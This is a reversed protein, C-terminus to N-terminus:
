VRTAMSAIVYQFTEDRYQSNLDNQGVDFRHSYTFNASTDDLVIDHFLTSNIFDVVPLWVFFSLYPVCSTNGDGTTIVAYDIDFPATAQNQPYTAQLSLAHRGNTFSWSFLEAQQELIDSQTNFERVPGYDM